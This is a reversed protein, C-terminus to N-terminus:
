EITLIEDVFVHESSDPTMYFDTYVYPSSKKYEIDVISNWFATKPLDYGPDLCFLRLFSKHFTYGIAVVAHGGKAGKFTFGIQVPFGQDIREIIKKNLEKKEPSNSKKDLCDFSHAIAEKNFSKRLKEELTSFYFGREKPKYHGKLNRLFEDQLHMVSNYGGDSLRQAEERSYLEAYNLRGHIMLMMMLSYVACSSDLDGQRIFLRSARRLRSYCYIERDPGDYWFDKIFKISEM